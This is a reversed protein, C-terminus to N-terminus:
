WWLSLRGNSRHWWRSNELTPWISQFVPPLLLEIEIKCCLLCCIRPFDDDSSSRWRKPIALIVLVRGGIRTEDPKSNSWLTHQFRHWKVPPLPKFAFRTLVGQVHHHSVTIHSKALSAWNPLWIVHCSPCSTTMLPEFDLGPSRVM